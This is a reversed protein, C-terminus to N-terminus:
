KLNESVSLVKNNDACTKIFYKFIMIDLDNKDFYEPHWEVGLAFPHNQFEIAEIIGDDAVASVIIGEGLKDVAQHHNSNVIASKLNSLKYLVTSDKININHYQINFNQNDIVRRIAKHNIPNDQNYYKSDPIHQILSGGCIVNMAQMGNCIGLFPINYKLANEILKFEFLTKQDNHQLKGNLGQPKDNYFKPHIDYDSGSVILGDILKIIDHINELQLPLMIPTGGMQIIADSYHKRIAYWPYHSYEYSDDILDVTIGIIPKKKM